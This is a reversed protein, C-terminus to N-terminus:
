QIAGYQARQSPSASTQGPPEPGQPNQKAMAAAQNAMIHMSQARRLMDPPMPSGEFWAALGKNLIWNPRYDAKVAKHSIWCTTLATTIAEAVSPYIAKVALAQKKLLQGNAILRFVTLPEDIVQLISLFKWFKLDSPPATETGGIGQWTQVPMMKLIEAQLQHLLINYSIGLRTYGSPFREMRDAHKGHDQISSLQRLSRRFNIPAPARSDLSQNFTAKAKMEITDALVAARKIEDTSIDAKREGTLLGVGTITLLAEAPDLQAPAYGLAPM